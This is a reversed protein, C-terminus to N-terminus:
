SRQYTDRCIDATRDGNKCNHRRKWWDHAEVWGGQVRVTRDRKTILGEATQRWECLCQIARRKIKFPTSCTQAVKWIEKSAKKWQGDRVWPNFTELTNRSIEVRQDSTYTKRTEM